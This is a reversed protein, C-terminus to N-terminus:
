ASGGVRARRSARRGVWGAAALAAAAGAAWPVYRQWDPTQAAEAHEQEHLDLEGALIDTQGGAVVTATVAVVGPKLEEALTAEYAGEHSEVNVKAGGIELEIKADNVPANDEYRDLYLALQKGNVVGVLEFVESVAAFRPLAPGAAAPPAEGHNHGDDAQVLPVALLQFATALVALTKITQPAHMSPMGTNRQPPNMATPKLHKM